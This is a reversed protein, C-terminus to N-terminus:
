TRKSSSRTKPRKGKGSNDDSNEVDDSNDDFQDSDYSSTDFKPSNGSESYKHGLKKFLRNLNWKIEFLDAQVTRRFHNFRDKLGSIEKRLKIYEKNNAKKSIRKESDFSFPITDEEKIDVKKRKEGPIKGHHTKEVQSKRQRPNVM